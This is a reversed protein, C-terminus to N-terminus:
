QIEYECNEAGKCTELIKVGMTHLEQRESKSTDLKLRNADLLYEYIDMCCNQIRKVLTLHKVPYRKRNSTITMTYEMLNIAKVIVDLKAESM